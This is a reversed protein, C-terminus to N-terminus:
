LIDCAQRQHHPTALRHGARELVLRIARFLSAAPRQWAAGKAQIDHGQHSAQAIGVMAADGLDMAMQAVATHADGFAGHGMEQIPLLFEKRHMQDIGRPPHRPHLCLPPHDQGNIPPQLRIHAMLHEPHQAIAERALREQRAAQEATRSVIQCRQQPLGAAHKRRGDRSDDGVPLMGDPVGDGCQCAHGMLETLEVVQALCCPREKLRIPVGLFLELFLYASHTRQFSRDLPPSIRLGLRYSPIAQRHATRQGIVSTWGQTGGTQTQVLAHM